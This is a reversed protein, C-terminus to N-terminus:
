RIRTDNPMGCTRSSALCTGQSMDHAVGWTTESAVYTGQECSFSGAKLKICPKWAVPGAANRVAQSTIVTSLCSMMTEQGCLHQQVGGGPQAGLQIHGGKGEDTVLHRAHKHAAELGRDAAAALPHGFDSQLSQTSTGHMLRPM